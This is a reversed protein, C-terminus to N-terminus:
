QIETACWIEKGNPDVKQLNYGAGTVTKKNVIERSVSKDTGFDQSGIKIEETLKDYGTPPRKVSLYDDRLLDGM